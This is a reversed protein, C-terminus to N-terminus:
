FFDLGLVSSMVFRQRDQRFPFCAEDIIHTKGAGVRDDDPIIRGGRALSGANKELACLFIVRREALLPFGEGFFRFFEKGDILDFALEFGAPHYLFIQESGPRFLTFDEIHIGPGDFGKGSLRGNELLEQFVALAVTEINM